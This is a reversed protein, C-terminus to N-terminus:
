TIIDPVPVCTLGGSINETQKERERERQQFISISESIQSKISALCTNEEAVFLGIKDDFDYIGNFYFDLKLPNGVM